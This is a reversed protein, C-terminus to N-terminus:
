TPTASLELLNADATGELWDLAVWDDGGAEGGDVGDGSGAVAGEAKVPGCEDSELMVPPDAPLSVATLGEIWVDTPVGFWVEVVGAM